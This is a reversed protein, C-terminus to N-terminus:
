PLIISLVLLLSTSNGGRLMFLTYCRFCSKYSRVIYADDMMKRLARPIGFLTYADRKGPLQIGPRWDVKITV